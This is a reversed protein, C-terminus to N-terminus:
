KRKLLFLQAMLFLLSYPTFVLIQIFQKLLNLLLHIEMELLGTGHHQDARQTIQLANLQAKLGTVGIFYLLGILGIKILAIKNM